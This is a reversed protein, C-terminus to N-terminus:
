SPYDHNLFPLEIIPKITKWDMEGGPGQIVAQYDIANDYQQEIKYNARVWRVADGFQNFGFGGSFFRGHIIARWKYKM